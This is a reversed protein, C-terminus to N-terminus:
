VQGRPRDPEGAVALAHEIGGTHEAAIGVQRGVAVAVGLREGLEEVAAIRIAVVNRDPCAREPARYLGGRRETARGPRPAREVLDVAADAVAHAVRLDPLM